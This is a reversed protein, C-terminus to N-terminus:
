EKDKNKSIKYYASTLYWGLARISGDAGVDPHKVDFVDDILYGVDYRGDPYKRVQIIKNQDEIETVIEFSM